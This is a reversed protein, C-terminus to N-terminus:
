VKSKRVGFRTITVQISINVGKMSQIWLGNRFAFGFDFIVPGKYVGFGMALEQFGSGGWAYGLRLPLGSFKTMEVGASWRWGRHAFMSNSFGTWIDSTYLLGEGQYSMGLRFIAPYDLTFEPLNGDVDLASVVQEDPSNSTFINENGITAANLSDITYVYRVAVSDSLYRNGWKLPFLDDSTGRVGDSGSLLKKFLNDRNWSINGFANIISVGFRWGNLDRTALGIDAGLGTGGIGQRFYYVGQGYVVDDTTVLNAKSSDPDLGFYFMGMIYKLTFGVSMHEFPLAYSFGFETVGMVELHMTMDINPNNANGELMLELIGYPLRFNSLIISHSTFAINNNSYNLAPFPFHIDQFYNLGNLDRLENLLKSKNDYTSNGPRQGASFLTDGSIENLNALSLWNSAIGYDFGFLQLMFPKDNQYALMAPNYGVAFIGEAVTSYAGALAVSRPDRRSQSFTLGIIFVGIILITRNSM